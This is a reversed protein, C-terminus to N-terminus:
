GDQYVLLFGVVMWSRQNVNVWEVETRKKEGLRQATEKVPIHTQHRLFCWVRFFFFPRQGLSHSGKEKRPGEVSLCIRLPLGSKFAARPWIRGPFLYSLWVSLASTVNSKLVSVCTIHGPNPPLLFFLFILALPMWWVTLSKGLM